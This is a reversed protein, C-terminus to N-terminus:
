GKCILHFSPSKAAAFVVSVENFEAAEDEGTGACDTALARGAEVDGATVPYWDDFVSDVPAM